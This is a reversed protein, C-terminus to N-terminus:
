RHRKRNDKGGRILWDGWANKRKPSLASIVSKGATRNRGIGACSKAAPFASGCLPLLWHSVLLKVASLM